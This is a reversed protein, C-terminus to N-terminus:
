SSSVVIVMSPSPQQPHTNNQVHGRSSRSALRIWDIRRPWMEGSRSSSCPVISCPSCNYTHWSAQGGGAPQGGGAGAAAAGAAGDAGAAALVGAAGLASPGGDGLNGMQLAAPGNDIQAESRLRVMGGRTTMLRRRKPWRRRM